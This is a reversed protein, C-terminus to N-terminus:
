HLFIWSVFESTQFVTWSVGKNLEKWLTSVVVRMKYVMVLPKLSFTIEGINHWKYPALSPYLDPIQIGYWRFKDLVDIWCILSRMSILCSVRQGKWQVRALYKWLVNLFDSSEISDLFWMVSTLTLCQIFLMVEASNKLRQQSLTSTQSEGVFNSYFERQCLTIIFTIYVDTLCLEHLYNFYNTLMATLISAAPEAWCSIWVSVSVCPLIPPLIAPGSPSLFEEPLGVSDVLRSGQPEWLRFWWVFFMCPSSKPRRVWIYCIHLKVKM